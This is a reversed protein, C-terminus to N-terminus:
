NTNLHFRFDKLMGKYVTHAVALGDIADPGKKDLPEVGKYNLDLKLVADRVPDKGLGGKVGVSNKVVSPTAKAIPTYPNYVYWADEIMNMVLCLVAFATPKTPNFFPTEMGVMVPQYDFFLRILIEKLERIRQDAPGRITSRFDEDLFYREIVITTCDSSIIEGTRTNYDIVGIGLKSSGPDIGIVRVTEDTLHQHPGLM